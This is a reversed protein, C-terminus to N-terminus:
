PTFTIKRNYPNLYISISTENNFYHFKDEIDQRFEFGINALAQDVKAFSYRSADIVSGPRLYIKPLMEQLYEFFLSVGASEDIQKSFMEKMLKIITNTEEITARHKNRAM